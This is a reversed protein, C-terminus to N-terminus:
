KYGVIVQIRDTPDTDSLITQTAISGAAFADRIAAAANRTAASTNATIFVGKQSLNPVDYPQAGDQNQLPMGADKMIRYIQSAYYMPEPFRATALHVPTSNSAIKRFAEYLKTEREGTIERPTEREEIFRVMKPIGSSQVFEVFGGLVVFPVVLIALVIWAVAPTRADGVTEPDTVLWLYFSGAFILLVPISPSTLIGGVVSAAGGFNRALTDWADLRGTWDAIAIVIGILNAAWGPLSSRSLLSGRHRGETSEEM